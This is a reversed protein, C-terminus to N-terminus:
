VQKNEPIRRSKLFMTKKLIQLHIEIQIHIPYKWQIQIPKMLVYTQNEYSRSQNWEPYSKTKM